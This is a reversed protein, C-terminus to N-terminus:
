GNHLAVSELGLQDGIRIRRLWDQDVDFRTSWTHVVYEMEIRANVVQLDIAIKVYILEHLRYTVYTLYDLDLHSPSPNPPLSLSM